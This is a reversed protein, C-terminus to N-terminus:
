KCVLFSGFIALKSAPELIMFFEKDQSGLQKAPKEQLESPMGFTELQDSTVSASKKIIRIKITYSRKSSTM